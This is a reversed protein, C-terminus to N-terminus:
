QLLKIVLELEQTNFEAPMKYPITCNCSLLDLYAIRIAAEFTIPELYDIQFYHEISYDTKNYHIHKIDCCIFYDVPLKINYYKGCTYCCGEVWTENLLKM